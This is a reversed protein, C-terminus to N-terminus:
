IMNNADPILSTKKLSLKETRRPTQQQVIPFTSVPTPTTVVSFVTGCAHQPTVPRQQEVRTKAMQPAAM